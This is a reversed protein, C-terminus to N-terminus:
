RTSTSHFRVMFMVVYFPSCREGFRTRILIAKRVKHFDLSVQGDVGIGLYNNMVLNRDKAKQNKRFGGKGTSVVSVSWRDLM